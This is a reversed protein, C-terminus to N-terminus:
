DEAPVAVAWSDPITFAKGMPEWTEVEKKSKEDTRTVRRAKAVRFVRLWPRHEIETKIDGETGAIVTHVRRVSKGDNGHPLEVGSPNMVTILLREIPIPTRETQPRPQQPKPAENPTTM